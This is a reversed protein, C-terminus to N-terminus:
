EGRDQDVSQAALEEAPPGARRREMEDWIRELEEHGRVVEAYEADALPQQAAGIHPNVRKVDAAAQLILAELRPDRKKNLAM